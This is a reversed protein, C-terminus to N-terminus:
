LQIRGGVSVVQLHLEYAEALDDACDALADISEACSRVRDELLDGAPSDWGRSRGVAERSAACCRLVVGGSSV